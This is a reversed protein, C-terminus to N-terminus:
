TAFVARAFHKPKNADIWSLAAQRVSVLLVSMLSFLYDSSEEEWRGSMAPTDKEVIEVVAKAENPWLWRNTLYSTLYERITM